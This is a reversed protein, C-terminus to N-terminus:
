KDKKKEEMEEEVLEILAMESSDSKRKGLLYRRTYGGPREQYRPGIEEFLKVVSQKNRLRSFVIRRNHLTDEKARTILPEIFKKLEKAKIKTTKIRDNKILANALNRLLAVKHEKKRGLPNKNILKKM